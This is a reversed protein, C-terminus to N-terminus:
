PEAAHLPIEGLFFTAPLFMSYSNGAGCLIRVAPTMILHELQGHSQYRV